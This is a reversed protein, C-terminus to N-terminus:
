SPVTAPVPKLLRRVTMLAEGLLNRGRWLRSDLILPDDEGLGVGWVRDVPSAEVLIRDATGLLEERMADNQRYKMLNVYAMMGERVCEWAADDYGTIARGLAKVKAPSKELHIRAANDFDRFFWAKTFMFAQESSDFSLGNMKIQDPSHHWNSFCQQGSYFYVHTPTTKM